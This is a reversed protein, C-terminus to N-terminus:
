EGGDGVPDPDLIARIDADEVPISEEAHAGDLVSHIRTPACSNTMAASYNRLDGRAGTNPTFVNNFTGEWGEDIDTRWVRADIKGDAGLEEGSIKLLEVTKDLIGLEAVQIYTGDVNIALSRTTKINSDWGGSDIDSADVTNGTVVVNISSVGRLYRYQDPASGVPKIQIAWAGNITKDLECSNPAAAYKNEAM